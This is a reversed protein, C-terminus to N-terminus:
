AGDRLNPQFISATQSFRRSTERLTFLNSQILGFLFGVEQM